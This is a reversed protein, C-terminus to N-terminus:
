SPVSWTWERAWSTPRAGRGVGAGLGLRRCSGRGTGKVAVGAGGGKRVLKSGRTLSEPRRSPAHGQFSGNINKWKDGERGGLSVIFFKFFDCDGRPRRKRGSKVWRWGGLAPLGHRVCLPWCVM